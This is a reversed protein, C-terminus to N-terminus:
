RQFVGRRQRADQAGRRQFGAGDIAQHDGKRHVGKMQSVAVLARRQQLTAREVHPREAFIDLAALTFARGKIEEVRPPGEHLRRIVRLHIPLFFPTGCRLDNKIHGAAVVMDKEIVLGAGYQARTIRETVKQAGIQEACRSRLAIRGRHVIRRAHVHQMAALRQKGCQHQVHQRHRLAPVDGVAPRRPPRLRLHLGLFFKGVHIHQLRQRPPRAAHRQNAPLSSENRLEIQLLAVVELAVREPAVRVNGIAALLAALIGRELRLAPTREPAVHARQGGRPFVPM